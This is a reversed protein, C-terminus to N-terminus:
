SEDSVDPRMTLEYGIHVLRRVAEARPPLDDQARRWDDIMALWADDVRMQFYREKTKSM